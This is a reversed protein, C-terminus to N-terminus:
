FNGMKPFFIQVLSNPFGFQVFLTGSWFKYARKMGSSHLICPLIKSFQLGALPAKSWWYRVLVLWYPRVEFMIQLTIFEKDVSISLNKVCSIFFCYFNRKIRLNSSIEWYILYTQWETEREFHFCITLYGIPINNTAEVNLFRSTSILNQFFGRLYKNELVKEAM